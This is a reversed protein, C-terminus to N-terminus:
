GGSQRGKTKLRPPPGVAFKMAEKLLREETAADM